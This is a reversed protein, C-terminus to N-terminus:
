EKAIIQALSKIGMVVKKVVKEDFSSITIIRCINFSPSCEKELDKEFSKWFTLQRKAYARTEKQIEEVLQVLEEKKEGREIWKFIERYGILGKKCLFPEWESGRLAIVEEIWGENGIMKTTRQNIREFLEDRDPALFIFVFNFPPQFTSKLESPKKGTKKWISLARQIRYVDNPHIQAARESDIKNLEDWLKEPDGVSIKVGDEIEVSKAPPFFVSKLYFLSGGVVLPMKNKKIIEKSKEILFTRYQVVNCDKPEAMIDFLHHPVDQHMWDPKATGVSLPEYFQGVDANIIEVPLKKAIKISLATKGSATPGSLFIVLPIEKSKVNM